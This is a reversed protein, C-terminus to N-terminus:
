NADPYIFLYDYHVLPRYRKDELHRRALSSDYQTRGIGILRGTSDKIRVLDGKEFDGNLATVGALLLSRAKSGTLADSAGRNIIVEAKAFGESYAM